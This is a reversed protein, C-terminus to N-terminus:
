EQIGQGGNVASRSQQGTDMQQQHISITMDVLHATLPPGCPLPHPQQAQWKQALISLGVDPIGLNM